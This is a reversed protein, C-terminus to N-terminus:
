IKIINTIINCCMSSRISCIVVRTSGDHKLISDKGSTLVNIQNNRLMAEQNTHATAATATASSSSVVEGMEGTTNTTSSSTQGDAALLKSENGMWHRLEAEWHYRATSPCLVLLPWDDTMYASMAAIAQVTKGTSISSRPINTLIYSDDILLYVLLHM